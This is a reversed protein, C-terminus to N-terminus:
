GVSVTGPSAAAFAEALPVLVGVLVVVVFEDEVALPEELAEDELPADDPPADLEPALAGLVPPALALPPAPAPVLPPVLPVWPV